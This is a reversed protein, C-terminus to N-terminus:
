ANGRDLLHSVCVEGCVVQLLRLRHLKSKVGLENHLIRDNLASLLEGDIQEEAFAGAYQKLNMVELLKVVDEVALTRLHRVNAVNQVTNSPCEYFNPESPTMHLVPQGQWFLDSNLGNATQSRSNQAKDVQQGAKDTHIDSHEFPESVGEEPLGGNTVATQQEFLADRDLAIQDLMADLTSLLDSELEQLSDPISTQENEEMQVSSDRPNHQISGPATDLITSARSSRLATESPSDNSFDEWPRPTPLPSWSHRELPPSLSRPDLIHKATNEQKLNALGYVVNDAVLTRSATSSTNVTKQEIGIGEKIKNIEREKLNMSISMPTSMEEYEQTHQSHDFPLPYQGRVSRSHQSIDFCGSITGSKKLSRLTHSRSASELPLIESFNEWSRPTPLPSWSHRELSPSLSLPDLTQKAKWTKIKCNESEYVPNVAVSIRSFSGDVQVDRNLQEKPYTTTDNPPYGNMKLDETPTLPYEKGIRVTPEVQDCSVPMCKVEGGPQKLVTNSERRSCVPVHQGNPSSLQECTRSLVSGTPTPICRGTITPTANVTAMHSDQTIESQLVHEVHGKENKLEYEDELAESSSSSLSETYSHNDDLLLCSDDSLATPSVPMTHSRKISLFPLPRIRQAQSSASTPIGKTNRPPLPMWPHQQPPNPASPTQSANYVPTAIISNIRRQERHSVSDYAPNAFMSVGRHIPRSVSKRCMHCLLNYSYNAWATDYIVNVLGKSTPALPVVTLNVDSPIEVFRQFNFISDATPEVDPRMIGCLVSMKQVNEVTVRRSTYDGCIKNTHQLTCEFPCRVHQIATSLSVRTQKSRTSFEGLCDSTIKIVSGDKLKAQLIPQKSSSKKKLPNKTPLKVKQLFLMSGVPVVRGQPTTFGKSVRVVNPLSKYADIDKVTELWEAQRVKVVSYCPTDAPVKFTREQPSSLSGSSETRVTAVKVMRKQLVVFPENAPFDYRGCISSREQRLRVISPLRTKKSCFQSISLPKGVEEFELSIPERTTTRQGSNSSVISSSMSKRGHYVVIVEEEFLEM